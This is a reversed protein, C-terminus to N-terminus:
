VPEPDVNAIDTAGVKVPVEIKAVTLELVILVSSPADLGTIAVSLEPFRIAPVVVPDPLTTCAVLGVSTVGERPVGDEKTPVFIVPVAAPSVAPFTVVLALRM